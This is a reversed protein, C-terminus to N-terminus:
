ETIFRDMFGRYHGYRIFPEELTNMQNEETFRDWLDLWTWFEDGVPQDPNNVFKNWENFPLTLKQKTPIM